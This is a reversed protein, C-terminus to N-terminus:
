NCKRKRRFRKRVIAVVEVRAVKRRRHKAWQSVLAKDPDSLGWCVTGNTDIVVYAHRHRLKM